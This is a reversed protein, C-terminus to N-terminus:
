ATNNILAISPIIGDSDTIFVHKPVKNVAVHIKVKKISKARFKISGIHFSELFYFPSM